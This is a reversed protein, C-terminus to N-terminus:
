SPHEVTNIINVISLRVRITIHNWNLMHIIVLSRIYIPNYTRRQDGVTPEPVLLTTPQQRWFLKTEVGPPTKVVVVIVVVMAGEEDDEM